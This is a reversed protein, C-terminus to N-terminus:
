APKGPPQQKKGSMVGRFHRNQIEHASQLSQIMAPLSPVGPEIDIEQAQPKSYDKGMPVGDFLPPKPYSDRDLLLRDIQVRTEYIKQLTAISENEAVNRLDKPLVHDKDKGIYENLKTLFDETPEEFFLYLEFGLPWLHDKLLEFHPNGGGLHWYSVVDPGTLFGRLAVSTKADRMYTCVTGLIESYYELIIKRRDDSSVVKEAASAYIDSVVEVAEKPHESLVQEFQKQAETAAKPDRGQMRDLLANLKDAVVDDWKGLFKEFEPHGRRTAIKAAIKALGGIAGATGSPIQASSDHHHEDM